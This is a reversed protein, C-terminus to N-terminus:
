SGSRWWCPDCCLALIYGRKTQMKRDALM